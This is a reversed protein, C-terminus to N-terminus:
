SNHIRGAVRNDSGIIGTVRKMSRSRHLRELISEALHIPNCNDEVFRRGLRGLREREKSDLVLTTLRDSVEEATEAHCIPGPQAFFDKFIDPRTNGIVPRGAALADMGAMGIASNGLQEIVIDSRAFESWVKSLPMEGSWTVQDALGEDAILQETESLHLGKKVLQIDLRVRTRRSFLGLGKIMLDSGKYDLVSRGPDVPAKWTLRTASFVRVRDNQQPPAENVMKLEAIYQFFRRSDTVGLEDLIEDSEPVVGRPFHLVGIAQQIGKRQRHIFDRTLNENRQGEASLRYDTAWCATRTNVTQFNAYYSVDSGTLLAIAPQQLLPQLSLGIDNLILGDCASLADLVRALSPHMSMVDWESLSAADLIWNPYGQTYEPNRSEPRHLKERSNVVLLVDHGLERLAQALMFPYNNTNGFFGLKM